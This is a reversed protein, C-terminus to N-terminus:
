ISIDCKTKGNMLQYVNPNKWHPTIIFLGAIFMGMCIKTYVCMKRKRPYSGLLLIAIDYPLNISLKKSVELCNELTATDNYMKIQLKHPM